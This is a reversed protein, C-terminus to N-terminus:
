NFLLAQQGSEFEKMVIHKDHWAKTKKKYIRANEYAESRFENLKSLQLM